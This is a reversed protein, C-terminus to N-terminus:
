CHVEHSTWLQWCWPFNYGKSFITSDPRTMSCNGIHICVKASSIGEATFIDDVEYGLKKIANRLSRVNGAGYDLLSVRNNASSSAMDNKFFAISCAVCVVFFYYNVLMM